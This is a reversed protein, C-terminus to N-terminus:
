RIATMAVADFGRKVTLRTSMSRGPGVNVTSVRVSRRPCRPPETSSNKMVPASASAWIRVQFSASSSNASAWKMPTVRGPCVSDPSPRGSSRTLRSSTGAIAIEDVSQRSRTLRPSGTQYRTGSPTTWYTAM